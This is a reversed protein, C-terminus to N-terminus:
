QVRNSDGELTLLPDAGMFCPLCSLVEIFGAV